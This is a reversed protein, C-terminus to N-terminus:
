FFVLFALNLIVQLKLEQVVKELGKEIKFVHTCMVTIKLCYHFYCVVDSQHSYELDVASSRYVSSGSKLPLVPSISLCFGSYYIIYIYVLKIMYLSVGIVFIHKFLFTYISLSALCLLM